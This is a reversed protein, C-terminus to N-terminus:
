KALECIVDQCIQKIKQADFALSPVDSSREIEVRKDDPLYEIVQKLFHVNVFLRGDGEKFARGYLILLENINIM